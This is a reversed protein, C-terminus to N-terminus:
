SLNKMLYFWEELISNGILLGSAPKTNGAKTYYHVWFALCEDYFKM